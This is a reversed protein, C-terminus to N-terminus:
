LYQRGLPRQGSYWGLVDSKRRPGSGGVVVGPLIDHSVDRVEVSGCFTCRRFRLEMSRFVGRLWPHWDHEADVCDQRSGLVHVRNRVLIRTENLLADLRKPLPTVREIVQVPQDGIRIIRPPEKVKM